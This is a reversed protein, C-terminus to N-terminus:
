NGYDRLLIDKDPLDVDNEVYAIYADDTLGIKKVQKGIKIAKECERIWYKYWKVRDINRNILHVMAREKTPWAYQKNHNQKKPVWKKFKWMGNTLWYGKETEKRITFTSLYLHTINDSTSYAIDYRYFKINEM